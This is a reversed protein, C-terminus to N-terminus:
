LSLLDFTVVESDFAGYAQGNWLKFLFKFYLSSNVPLSMTNDTNTVFINANDKSFICRYDAFPGGQVSLSLTETLDLAPMKPDNFPEPNRVLIGLVNGTVSNRVINFETTLAPPLAVMQFAGEMLRNYPDAFAQMFPHDLAMMGALIDTAVVIQTSNDFAKVVDFVAIKLVTPGPGVLLKYSNVQDKFDSYRSTQFGYRHVEHVVHDLDSDRKYRSNFIATYLKLPKLAPLSFGSHVGMPEIITVSTCPGGNANMNNLLTVEQGVIPISDDLWSAVVPLIQSLSPDPAPDKVLVELNSWIKEKGAYADWDAFMEYVYAQVYYLSLKPNLYFLPKANILQGDANPYCKPFDLYHRLRSLKFEDERDADLLAQYDLRAVQAGTADYYQHFHGIPGATKFAMVYAHEYNALSPFAAPNNEYALDDRTSIRIAFHTDPRWIPQISGSFGAIMSNNEAQVQTFTPLTQNYVAATFEQYCVLYIYAACDHPDDEPNAPDGICGIPSVVVKDVPANLNSYSVVGPSGVYSYNDTILIYGYIAMGSGDTGIVEKRYYSVKAQDAFAQITLEVLPTSPNFFIELQSGEAIRLGRGFGSFAMPAIAGDVGIIRFVIDGYAIMQNSSVLPNGAINIGMDVRFFGQFETCTRNLQAPTCFITQTTIGLDEPIIDGSGQSVFSLPSQALIRLKNHLNPQEYQWYGDKLDNLPATVFPAVALPTAADYIDYDLWTMTVPDYYKIEVTDLRYEHRVRDHKGRQPAVFDMYHSGMTNGGFRDRVTLSPLLGKVFEIDIFSDMPIIYDELVVPNPFTNGDTVLLPFTERTQINLAKGSQSLNDNLLAIESTDHQNEFVWSFNFKACREKKLIMVCVELSGTVTFPKPAEAALNTRASLNFGFGFASLAVNGGLQISGGIQKPKFSLQGKVDLYASLDAKLPGFEKHLAYSSGAGARIGSSAIMMYFYSNFLDFLRAQIRRNEPTERGINVYWSTSNGFFFGLEIVGELTAIKGIKPGSDPIKYNAGLGAEISTSTIAILAFFPPDTADNLGIRKKLIAAQGQLLFVNPLSLLFFLKSSFTKGADYATALSVGAGLSFGDEQSFKDIQIGEKFTSPVKAKYYQWWETDDGLFAKSKSAVYRQGVLARFGYIGLGTTGLLIPSSIELGVDVIFAPVKPNLRMAASGGMKLKPLTFDVGGAYETGDGGNEPNKMSLFGKLLLAATAPKADGPIVIDIAISQIRLFYHRERGLSLNDDTTYYFTVGNGSVDVGGPGTDIGGDFTFYKYQRTEPLLSITNTHEQEHSGLGIATVSLKVPGVELSIAKPLTIKGGKIEIQGDEWIILKTIDFKDPLFQGIPPALAEFDIAGSVAIYFRDDERGVEISKLNVSFAGPVKILTIGQDESATVSFDGEPGFHVRIDIKADNGLSDKFGPIVLYGKVNSGVIANQHFRIDFSTFCAKLKDGFTKFLGPGSTELGITGSLGGTGILLNRGVIAVGVPNINSADNKIFPPLSIACDQIYVGMFDDPRGDLTAEPINTKRSIDLKAGLIEIGLPLNGIQSPHNLSASVDANYGIGTETSFSFTEGTTNAFLLMSRDTAPLPVGGSDLSATLPTLFERPFEIGVSLNLSANIRPTVLNLLYEKTPVKFLSSFLQDLKAHTNGEDLADLIYLVFVAVSVGPVSPANKISTVVEQAPHPGSPHPITATYLGNVDDVFKNIPIPATIFIGLVRTVLEAESLNLIQLALQFFAAPTFAFGSLDFRRLYALVPWEYHMKVPFESFDGPVFSPNLVLKIGTGPLELDLRKKSMLSLSYFAGDGRASKSVQLDKYYLDDLLSSLGTNVFDLQEPLFDLQVISSLPPYFVPVPM